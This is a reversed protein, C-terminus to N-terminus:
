PKNIPNSILGKYELLADIKPQEGRFDLYLETLDKSGGTQLINVLFRHGLESKLKVAHQFAMFADSAFVDAWNYSYYGAAYGGAFIHSFSHQFRNFNAPPLVAVKTRVEDLCQQINPLEGPKSPFWKHLTADFMGFELQRAMFMGANYNKRAILANVQQQTIKQKTNAHIAVDQLFDWDYGWKEMFQSPLEVMDWEVGNCGAASIYNVKTLIHHLVHGFEHLLTVVEHHYLLPQQMNDNSFNTILFAIPYQLNGDSWKHRSLCSGMWAGSQKNSRVFLDLYFYGALSGDQNNVQFLKVTPDWSDFKEVESVNIGYLEHALKFMGSLVKDLVFYNRLEEESINFLKQQALEAYYALDWPNLKDIQDQEKAFLQLQTFEQKAIPVTKDVLETLFNTVVASDKAAKHVLSYELYNKFGLINALEQRLVVINQMIKSNDLNPNYPEFKDSARSVHAKYVKKRLDRDKAYKLVVEVAPLDLTLWWGDQKGQQIAIKNANNLFYEPLGILQKREAVPVYYSWSQTSDLVNKAFQDSLASLETTIQKYRNQEALSLNVGALKFNLLLDKIIKQQASNFKFFDKSESLQLIKHYLNQNQLFEANFKTLSAIINSYALRLEPSDKVAHLHNLINVLNELKTSFDELPQITNEWTRNVAQDMAINQYIQTYELLQQSISQELNTISIKSFEPFKVQHNTLNNALATNNILMFIIGILKLKYLIKGVILRQNSRM